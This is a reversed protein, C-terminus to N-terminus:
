RQQRHGQPNEQAPSKTLAHMPHLCEDVHLYVWRGQLAVNARVKFSKPIPVGKEYHDVGWIRSSVTLEYEHDYTRGLNHPPGYMGSEFGIGNVAQTYAM